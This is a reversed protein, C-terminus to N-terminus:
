ATEEQTTQVSQGSESACGQSPIPSQLIPLSVRRLQNSSTNNKPHADPRKKRKPNALAIVCIFACAYFLEWNPLHKGVSDAIWNSSQAYSLAEFLLIGLTGGLVFRKAQPLRYALHNIRLSKALPMRQERSFEIAGTPCVDRCRGCRICDLAAVEGHQQLQSSVPNQMPCARDCAKCGVCPSSLRMRRTALLNGARTLPILPCLLRCFARQGFVWTIFFALMGVDLVITLWTGIAYCPEPAGLNVFASPLTGLAYWTLLTNIVLMKLLLIGRLRGPLKLNLPRLGLRNLLWLAFDQAAGFHCAWGCFANGLSFTSVLTAVVLLLGVSVLGIQAFYFLGNPSM